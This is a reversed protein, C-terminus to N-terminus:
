FWVFKGKVIKSHKKVAKAVRKRWAKILAAIKAEKAKVEAAHIAAPSLRKPTPKKAIHKTATPKAVTHKVTTIMKVTVINTSTPLAHATTVKHTALPKAVPQGVIKAGKVTAIM